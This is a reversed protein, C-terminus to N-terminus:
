PRQIEGEVIFKGGKKVRIKAGKQLVCIAGKALHLTAGAGIRITARKKLHLVASPKIEFLTPEALDFSGDANRIGAPSVPSTGRELSITKGTELVLPKQAVNPSFRLQGCWRVHNRITWDQWHIRVLLGPQGDPALGEKVLQIRFGNLNIERNEFAAPPWAARKNEFDTALTYIPVPSPNTSLSFETQGSAFSFADLDDGGAWFNYVLSDGIWESLGAQVTDGHFLRGDQNQDAVQWLDHYGTMPNPRSWSRRIPLSANGWQCHGHKPPQIHEYDYYIDFRGEASVPILFGALGNPLDKRPSYIDTNGCTQDKGIQYYAFLGAPGCPSASATRRACALNSDIWCDTPAEMRRYELWLYQNKVEPRASAGLDLQIRVADGSPLFDRLWLYTTGQELKAKFDTPMPHGSTDLAGISWDRDKPKWDMMWRDWGCASLMPSFLQATAGYNLGMALTTHWGRGGATHWHNGGFIGHLHEAVTTHIGQGRGYGNNFSSINNTGAWDAFPQGQYATVGFGANPNTQWGHLYRNNKWVVYVLDAKGDPVKLNPKGSPTMTWQDFVTWPLGAPSFPQEPKKMKRFVADVNYTGASMEQCSVTIKEPWSDGLIVYQGFSAQQYFATVVGHTRDQAFADVLDDKRPPLGITPWDDAFGANSFGGPCNGSSYDVEAFVVLVYLTDRTPLSVGNSICLPAQAFVHSFLSWFVVLRFMLPLIRQKAM